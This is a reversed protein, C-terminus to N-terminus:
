RPVVAALDHASGTKAPTGGFLRLMTCEVSDMVSGMTPATGLERELSTVGKGRIGCPVISEFHDLRTCVNLAFGHMTVWRSIRVGVAGVKNDGVWTGNLGAVRHATVGLYGCVDIMCQELDRVYRRVDKRDPKLDLIPYVVLQGPGHYTVDGGRGVEHVTFDLSRLEEASWLLHEEKAARGLTITPPHQLLLVTDAIHDRTREERLTHQLQHGKDYPVCGLRLFRM